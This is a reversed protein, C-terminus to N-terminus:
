RVLSRGGCVKNVEPCPKKVTLVEKSVNQNLTIDLLGKPNKQSSYPLNIIAPKTRDSTYSPNQSYKQSKHSSATNRIMLHSSLAAM